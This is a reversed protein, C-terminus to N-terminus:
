LRCVACMSRGSLCWIVCSLSHSCKPASVLIYHVWKFRSFFWAKLKPMLCQVLLLTPTSVLLLNERQHWPLTLRAEISLNTMCDNWSPGFPANKLPQITGSFDETQFYLGLTSDLSVLRLSQEPGTQLDASLVLHERFVQVISWLLTQCIRQEHELSFEPQYRTPTAAITFIWLALLSVLWNM